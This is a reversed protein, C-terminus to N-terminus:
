FVFIIHNLMNCMETLKNEYNEIRDKKTFAEHTRSLISVRSSNGQTKWWHWNPCNLPDQKETRSRSIELIMHGIVPLATRLTGGTIAEAPM